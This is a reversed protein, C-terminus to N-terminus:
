GQCSINGLMEAADFRERWLADSVRRKYREREEGKLRALRILEDIVEHLHERDGSM